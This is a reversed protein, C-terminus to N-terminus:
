RRRAERRARRVRSREYVITRERVVMEVVGMVRGAELRVGGEVKM